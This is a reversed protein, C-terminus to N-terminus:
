QHVSSSRRVTSAETGLAGETDPPEVENANVIRVSDVASRGPPM